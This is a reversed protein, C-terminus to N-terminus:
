ADDAQGEPLFITLLFNTLFKSSFKILLSLRFLRILVNRKGSRGGAVKCPVSRPRERYNAIPLQRTDSQALVLGGQRHSKHPDTHIHRHSLSTSLSLSLSLSHSLTHKHTQTHTHTHTNRDGKPLLHAFICRKQWSYTPNSQVPTLKCLCSNPM